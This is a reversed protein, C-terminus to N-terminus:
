EGGGGWFFYYYCSWFSRNESLVFVCFNFFCEGLTYALRTHERTQGGRNFGAEFENVRASIVLCAVDAQAAGSIMHPVYNKHGPADLFCFPSLNKFLLFLKKSFIM